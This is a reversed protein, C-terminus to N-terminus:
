AGRSAAKLPYTVYFMTWYHHKGHTKSDDQEVEVSTGLHERAILQAVYLGYGSGEKVVDPAARGRHFPRFISQLEDGDIRPGFSAVEVYVGESRDDLYVEVPSGNPAYKLANDILTHIIVGSAQTSAVIKTYSSGLLQLDLNRAQFQAEYMRVYKTVMGHVRFEGIDDALRLWEPRVLVKAVALKEDLMRAAWYIAQEQQSAARLKGDFAESINGYRDEIVRNINQILQSNIQQYDHYFSFSRVIEERLEALFNSKFQERDLLADEEIIREIRLKEREGDRRAVYGAIARELDARRVPEEQKRRRKWADSPTTQHELVVGAVLMDDDVRSYNYGYKCTAIQGV